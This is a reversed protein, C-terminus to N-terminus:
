KEIKITKDFTITGWLEREYLRKHTVKTFDLVVIQSDFFFPWLYRRRFVREIGTGQPRDVLGLRHKIGLISNVENLLHSTFDSGPDSTMHTIHGLKIRAAIVADAARGKSRRKTACLMIYNTGLKKIIYIHDMGDTSTPSIPIGDISITKYICIPHTWPWLMARICPLLVPCFFGWFWCSVNKSTGWQIEM